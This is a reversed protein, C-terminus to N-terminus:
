APKVVVKRSREQGMSDTTAREDNAVYMHILRREYPSMPDLVISKNTKIAAEIAEHAIREFQERKKQNYNNIDIKFYLSFGRQRAAIRVLHELSVLNAGRQGILIEAGDQVEISFVCSSERADQADQVVPKVTFGMADFIEVIINKINEKDNM